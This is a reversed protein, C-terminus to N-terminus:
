IDIFMASDNLCGFDGIMPEDASGCDLCTDEVGKYKIKPGYMAQVAFTCEKTTVNDSDCVPCKMSKHKIIIPKSITTLTTPKDM